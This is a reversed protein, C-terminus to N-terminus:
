KFNYFSEENNLGRMRKIKKLQNFKSRKWLYIKYFQLMSIAKTICYKM